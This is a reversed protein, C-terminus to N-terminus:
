LQHIRISPKLLRSPNYEIVGRPPIIPPTIVWISRLIIKQSLNIVAGTRCQHYSGIKEPLEPPEIFPESGSVVFISIETETDTLLSVPDEILWFRCHDMVLPHGCPSLSGSSHFLVLLHIAFFKKGPPRGHKGLAVFGRIGAVQEM